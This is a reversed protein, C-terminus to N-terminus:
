HHNQLKRMIEIAEIDKIKEADELQDYPVLEKHIRRKEDKKKGNDPVGFVYYNLFHFRCWRIHELEALENDEKENSLAAIVGGFDAASINSAKLFGTLTNWDKDTGYKDAYYENLAVAGKILSRRRINDDTFVTESRGFPILSGFSIHSILDNEVPSYYYIEKDRAKVILTQLRELALVDAVIVIDAMSIVKWVDSDNSSYYYLEDANMLKMGSHRAQFLENDTVFHYKIKQKSSFLNLQLGSAVIEGALNSDGYIVIDLQERGKNWVAIKKWLMRAISSNRDFLTVNKVMDFLGLEMDQVCIFVSKGELEKKHEEYFQMNKQDSSFMIIHSKAYGKFIEGPYIASVKKGFSFRCDEDTYVAVSDRKGFLCVRCSVSNWARQVTCLIATATVLPATWRAIEIWLNYGESIHSTFYLAFSAYFSDTLMEGASIYGITGIVFPLLVVIPIIRKYFAKWERM